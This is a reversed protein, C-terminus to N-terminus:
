LSLQLGINFVRQVPYGLGDGGMEPDWLKFKTINFLNTGSLYVRLNQLRVKAAIKQPLTYGIEASKLRLFTGDRLWWTSTQNNNSIATASLRPWFAYVDQNTESWHSDAIFQLLANSGKKGDLGDSPQAFPTISGPSIFFSSRGSGQFFCNFDFAKYGVSFGFGYIVEPTTPYGIPVKDRNDVIGDKNLDKYKIDGAMYEGYQQQPSNKVDEDDVFLREAILGFPQNLKTGIKSLWPTDSYDPEEYKSYKSRAYTYNGRVTVWFNNNFFHSYDLSVEFGSGKAEGINAMPSKQFGMITPIDARTQLINSRREKFYEAQIELNEFLKMEVGLNLKHSIEWGIKTNAYRNISIGNPGTKFDTGFAMTRDGDNMNVESLYFFRENSINDNGVLGYSGKLKLMNVIKSFRSIRWFKEKSVVWGLGGSPFFGWRNNKDFRESGNYGFNLEVFYRDLLGYTFRGALGMNRSPLSAQLTSENGSKGERVTYVLMGSINHREDFIRDYSLSGELYISSSVSKGGQTYGLYDTGKDPNLDALTYTDNYKDYSSISYYFPTYSRSLDYYSNRTANGLLRGKLGKTIFDFNQKLELQALVVTTESEKYGRCMEAYPNMYEGGEGYNGFLVHNSYQHVADPEFIAPFLVPNAKIAKTYMAAGGSLPGQYSDFTGSVRVALETTKTLNVNVNSRVTYKNLQINNNFSNDPDTKLIGNDRAYSLAIYYRAVRGGGSINLNGRQNTTYDKFLMDKWNVMPYVYSNLGQKRAAIESDLYPLQALPDRTRVAENHLEMFTLPDAVNVDKVPASFSNEIRFSLKMKGEEGEKTTVLIVGNAGRAGYLATATADKLISFSAIDDPNLRSLDASTLEINDILILPNAQGTGFTTVGRIFFEANDQGPEGSRQYAIVGALKGAFGTTLNSSTNKLEAPRITSVSGLVSEKKQKAFAVVTVDELSVGGEKLNIVRFVNLDRPNFPIVKKEYGIYSIEVSKANAPVNLMFNGDLNTAVGMNTGTILISAGIIPENNNDLVVGKITYTKGTQQQIAVDSDKAHLPFICLLSSFYFLVLLQLVKGSNRKENIM